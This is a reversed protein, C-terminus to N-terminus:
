FFLFLTLLFIFGLSLCFCPSFQESFYDWLLKLFKLIKKFSYEAASLLTNMSNGDVSSLLNRGLGFGRKLHRIVPEIATRHKMKKWLQIPIKGRRPKDIHITINEDNVNHKRYGQDVFVLKPKVKTNSQAKILSISILSKLTIAPFLLHYAITKRFPHTTSIHHKVVQRLQIITVKSKFKM